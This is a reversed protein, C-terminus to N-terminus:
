RRHEPCRDKCEEMEARCEQHSGGEIRCRDYLCTVCMAVCNRPGCRPPNYYTRSGSGISAVKEVGPTDVLALAESEVQPECEGGELAARVWREEELTLSAGLAIHGAVLVLLVALTGGRVSRMAKGGKDEFTRMGTEPPDATM